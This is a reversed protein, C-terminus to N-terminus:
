GAGANLMSEPTTEKFPLPPHEKVSSMLEDPTGLLPKVPESVQETAALPRIVEAEPSKTPQITDGVM